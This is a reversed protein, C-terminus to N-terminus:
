ANEKFRKAFNKIQDEYVARLHRHVLCQGTKVRIDDLPETPGPSRDPFRRELYEVVNLPIPPAKEDM